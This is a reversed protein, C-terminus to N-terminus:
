SVHDHISRGFLKEFCGDMGSLIDAASEFVRVFNVPLSVVFNVRKPFM